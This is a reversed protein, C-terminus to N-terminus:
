HTAVAARGGGGALANPTALQFTLGAGAEQAVSMVENGGTEGM